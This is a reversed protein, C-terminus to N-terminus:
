NEQKLGARHRDKMEAILSKSLGDLNPFLVRPIVQMKVLTALLEEKMSAEIRYKKLFSPDIFDALDPRTESHITLFV